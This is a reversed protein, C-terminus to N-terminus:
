GVFEGRCFHRIRQDRERPRRVAEVQDTEVAGAALNLSVGDIPEKRGDRMLAASTGFKM